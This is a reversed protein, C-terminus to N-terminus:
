ECGLSYYRNSTAMCIFFTEGNKNDYTARVRMRIDLNRVELTCPYTHDATLTCTTMSLGDEALLGSVTWGEGYINVLMCGFSVSVPSKKEGLDLVPVFGVTVAALHEPPCDPTPEYTVIPVPPGPPRTPEPTATVVIVVPESTPPVVVETDETMNAVPSPACGTLFWLGLILIGVGVVYKVIPAPTPEKIHYNM